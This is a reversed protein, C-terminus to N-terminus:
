VEASKYLSLVHGDPDAFDATLGGDPAHQVPAVIEVGQEVLRDVLRNIDEDGIQFVVIPTRGPRENGQFFVLVANGIAATLMRGEPSEALETELGLVNGYFDRSADLDKVLFVVASIRAEKLM